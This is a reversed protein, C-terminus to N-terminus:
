GPAARGRAAARAPRTNAGAATAGPTAGRLRAAGLLISRMRRREDRDLYRRRGGEWPGLVLRVRTRVRERTAAPAGARVLWELVVGDDHWAGLTDQMRHLEALWSEAPGGFWQALCEIRYRLGKLRRRLAHLAEAGADDPQPTGSVEWGPHVLIEGLAPLYLDPIVAEAPLTGLFSFRPAGLWDALGERARRLGPRAVARLARRTARDRGDEVMELARRLATRSEDDDAEDADRELVERLVDLDRLAGLRREVRKLPAVRCALPLSMVAAFTDLAAALRRATVRVQHTAEGRPEDGLATLREELRGLRPQVIGPIIGALTPDAM